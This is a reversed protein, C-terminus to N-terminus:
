CAFSSFTRVSQFDEYVFLTSGADLTYTHLNDMGYVRVQVDSRFDASLVM